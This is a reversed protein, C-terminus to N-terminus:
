AVFVGALTRAGAGRWSRLMEGEKSYEFAISFGSFSSFSHAV